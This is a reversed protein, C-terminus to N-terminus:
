LVLPAIGICRREAADIRIMAGCAAPQQATPELQGGERDRLRAISAAPDFGIVGGQGGTCGLDTMYGVRQAILRADNTQVHTHSGVVAVVSPHREALHWAIAGKEATAEAHVEVIAVAGPHEEELRSLHEDLTAFPDPPTLPMFVRGLVTLVFVEASEGRPPAPLRIRAKAEEFGPFNIPRCLPESARKMIPIVRQDDAAHDGTTVADAGAERLAAYGEPHLGRGHRTNEGNVLVASVGMHQRAHAAARAFADRGPRGVVDGFFAVRYEGQTHSM